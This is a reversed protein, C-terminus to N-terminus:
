TPGEEFDELTSFTDDRDLGDPNYDAVGLRYAIQEMQMPALGSKHLVSAAGFCRSANSQDTTQEDGDDGM